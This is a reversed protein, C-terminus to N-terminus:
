INETEALLLQNRHIQLLCLEQQATQELMYVLHDPRLMTGDNRCSGVYRLTTQRDSRTVWSPDNEVLELEFLRDRLNILHVKGSKTTQELWIEEAAQIAQIWTQWQDTSIQPRDGGAQDAVDVTILYEAKELIQASAPAKMSVAEVRYIPMDAPLQAALKAQFLAPEIAETLEFDVIEGSSTTGLPLANAPIIRPNPHFGGTFTIPISARRIARDFLRMLDLHSVLAMEGTKGLWVRLRQSRRQDPEFQGVFEPIPLPAVVINHGFDVGCVGCHSCREFSCDPVTAAELARQLDEKLWQKHIGTDIFDWPLPSDLSSPSSRHDTGRQPYDAARPSIVEAELASESNEFLNWEGNEVQRYKWTLHSEDIAQTWANFAKDLSEWWADMGAGLEWARRVVSSLRRDGRGVFDEMASIRVDTFNVKLGRLSRFAERLLSQKRKFEATSVSHWQFPTHPKPTFNSITINFDLRKRGRQSCERRLWHITEAIGLVDVDTEGPLGIMFYLKIKDWGQDFATKVGRLLEENTLGKNIIDRMRQTGAEPAFTLSGQRTGGLIHAINEDFRDVRQSPLSLSINENKLRNKIEMGVAPLALYDSCSLSLLSFENYGTARMGQEISEVISEPEVDRAPRTLMGPQCFRCGRTCGRRIEIVLRDHVTEVYPVLGISYAPIPDAVRRLIRTPVDPRNPYVAGDEAMDYFRPVYVGPVQALDLLLSERSLGAIKGEELVLGIEPLLEEGDGLAIFDFFDAYPEPNSTATQGGAFILPYAGEARDRWALPIGALDLMELINTAGLEYSLSFGLIDFDTLSRRSEVAFLPTRTARLKAALDPAPLYARDCLQRPQANLISYLIIHGLNSAGVEYVEPYTLSWRVIASEWPKHVAGLENGLYRAPRLIEPTLLAEVAVVM